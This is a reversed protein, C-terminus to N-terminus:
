VVGATHVAQGLRVDLECVPLKFNTVTAIRSVM